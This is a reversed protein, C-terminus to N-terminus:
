GRPRVLVTIRNGEDATSFLPVLADGQPELWAGMAGGTWEFTGNDALAETCWYVRYISLSDAVAAATPATSSRISIGYMGLPVGTFSANTSVTTKGWDEPGGWVILGENAVTTGTVPVVAPLTVYFANAAMTTWATGARNTRFMNRTAGAGANASSIVYSVANFPVQSFIAHGDDNATTEVPFDGTATNQASATADTYTTNGTSWAGAQWLSNPIREALGAFVVGGSRNHMSFYGLELSPMPTTTTTPTGGAQNQRYSGAAYLLGNTASQANGPGRLRYPWAMDILNYTTIPQM